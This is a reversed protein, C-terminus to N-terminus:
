LMSVVMLKIQQRQDYIFARMFIFAALFYHFIFSQISVVCGCVEVLHCCDRTEVFRYHDFDRFNRFSGM